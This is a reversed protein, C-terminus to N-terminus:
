HTSSLLHAVHNGTFGVDDDAAGTTLGPGLTNWYEEAHKLPKKDIVLQKVHWASSVTKELLIAPAEFIKELVNNM